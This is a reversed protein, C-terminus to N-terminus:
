ASLIHMCYLIDVIFTVHRLGERQKKTSSTGGRICRINTFMHGIVVFSVAPKANFVFGVGFGERLGDDKCM